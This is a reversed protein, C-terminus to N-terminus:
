LLKIPATDGKRQDGLKKLRAKYDGSVHAIIDDCVEEGETSAIATLCTSFLDSLAMLADQLSAGKKLCNEIFEIGLKKEIDLNENDM